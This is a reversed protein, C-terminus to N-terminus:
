SRVTARYLRRLLPYPNTWTGDPEGIQIHVHYTFEDSHGPTDGYGTNGIEGITDGPAVRDGVSVGPPYRRLHGYFFYRGDDSRIGVRWGSYFLWGVNEVVGSTISLVPTGPEAFIDNGEHFGDQVWGRGPYFRMRPAHWDERFNIVSYWDTRAVPFVMEDVVVPALYGSAAGAQSAPLALAVAAFAICARIKPHM